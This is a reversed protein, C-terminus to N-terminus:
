GPIQSTSGHDSSGEPYDIDGDFGPRKMATSVLHGAREAGERGGPASVEGSSGKVGPELALGRVNRLRRTWGPLWVNQITSAKGGLKRGIENCRQPRWEGELTTGWTSFGGGTRRKKRGKRKMPWARRYKSPEPRVTVEAAGMQELLRKGRPMRDCGCRSPDPCRDIQAESVMGVERCSFCFGHHEAPEDPACSVCCVAVPPHTTADDPTSRVGRSTNCHACLPRLNSSSDEGDRSFPIVHDM